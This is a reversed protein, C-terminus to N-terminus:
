FYVLALTIKERLKRRIFPAHIVIITNITIQESIYIIHYIIPREKNRHHHLGLTEEASNKLYLAANPGGYRTMTSVLKILKEMWFLTLLYQLNSQLLNTEITRTVYDRKVNEREKNLGKRLIFNSRELM